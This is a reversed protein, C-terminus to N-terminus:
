RGPSASADWGALQRSVVASVATVWSDAGNAWPLYHFESGGAETFAERNLQDIEELTELCDAAFGPCVVDVRRAGTRGLEAVTDITAPKLWEAPGFVSQFTMVAQDPGLGLRQRIGAATAECEARYPDGAEHMARPIGHFSMLLRDGSAFDPRGYEAWGAQIGAVVADLYGADGPFSRVTRLELQDRRTLMWRAVADFVTGASSAAFQPYLPVVLVRRHGRSYLGDLVDAVSPSGYRMGVTVVAADGIHRSVGDALARTNVLLPSGQEGWVSAYKQASARPRVRLIIGELIPKWLLRSMEIVRTDSLFERLYPRVHRATPTEPTGLNVLVVAPRDHAESITEPALYRRTM